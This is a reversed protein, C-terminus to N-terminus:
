RITRTRLQEDSMNRLTLLVTQVLMTAVVFWWASSKLKGPLRVHSPGAASWFFTSEGCPRRQEQGMGGIAGHGPLNGQAVLQM